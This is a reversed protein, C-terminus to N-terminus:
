AHGGLFVEQVADKAAIEESPGSDVIRGVELLCVRDSIQLAKRANQEVLLISIGKDRIDQVLRFVQNVIMPALGLSPEDLLMLKPKSMLARAIALMQQEGGSLSSALQERREKLIPFIEFMEEMRRDIEKQDSLIFAGMRINDAITLTGWIQRGEPVWSIGIKHIQYPKLKQLDYQGDFQISGKNAPQLGMISKIITTKGSGNAGLIAQIEGKGLELDVDVVAPVAKYSVSLDNITLM